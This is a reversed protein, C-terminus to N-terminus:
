KGGNNVGAETVAFDGLDYKEMLKAYTGDDVLSQLALRLAERLGYATSIPATHHYTPNEGWYQDLLELDFYFVGARLTAACRQILLAGRLKQM